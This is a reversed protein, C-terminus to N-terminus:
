QCKQEVKGGLEIVKKEDAAAKLKGFYKCRVTARLKYAEINNPKLEIAKSYYYDALNYNRNTYPILANAAKLYDEATWSIERKIEASTRAGLSTYKDRYSKLTKVAENPNRGTPDLRAIEDDIFDIVNKGDVLDVFNIDVEYTLLLSDILHPFNLYVSLKLLSGNSVAFGRNVDCILFRKYNELWKQVKPIATEETDKAPDVGALKWFRYEYNYSFEIPAFGQVQPPEGIFIDDCFM